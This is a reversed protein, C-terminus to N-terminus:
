TGDAGACPMGACVSPAGRPGGFTEHINERALLKARARHTAQIAREFEATGLDLLHVTM